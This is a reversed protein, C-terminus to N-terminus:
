ATAAKAISSILALTKQVDDAAGGGYAQFNRLAAEAYQRADAFQGDDMLALAVNYRTQAAGYLNGQVEELRLSERYHHLARDLDGANRYIVGLESHGVALCGVADPPTRELAEHYWRLADTLHRLIERDPKKASRADLFREYAVSGLQGLTGARSV